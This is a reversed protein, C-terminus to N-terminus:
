RGSKTSNSTSSEHDLSQPNQYFVYFITDGVHASSVCVVTDQNDLIARYKPSIEDHINVPTQEIIKTIIHGERSQLTYHSKTTPESCSYLFLLAVFIFKMARGYVFSNDYVVPFLSLAFAKAFARRDICM